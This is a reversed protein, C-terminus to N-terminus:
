RAVVQGLCEVLEAIGDGALRYDDEGLWARAHRAEGSRDLWMGWETNSGQRGDKSVNRCVELDTAVSQKFPEETLTARVWERRTATWSPRNTAESVWKVNMM